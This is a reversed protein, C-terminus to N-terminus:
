WHNHMFNPVLSCLSQPFKDVYSVVFSKRTKRIVKRLEYLDQAEEDISLPLQGIQHKIGALVKVCYSRLGEADIDNERAYKKKLDLLGFKM